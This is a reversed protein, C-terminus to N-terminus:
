SAINEILWPRTFREPFIRAITARKVQYLRSVVDHALHIDRAAGRYIM